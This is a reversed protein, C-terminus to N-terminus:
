KFKMNKMQKSVQQLQKPNLNMGMRKAMQAIQKDDFQMNTLQRKLFWVGGAFGLGLGILLAVVGVIWVM